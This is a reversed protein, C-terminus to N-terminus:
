VKIGDRRLDAMSAPGAVTGRPAKYWGPDKYSTLNNRVKFVNFMGGAGLYDHPGQAGVMPISNEPMTMHKAHEAMDGMGNAGMTMYGPVINNMKHDLKEHKIGIVNPIDHGMQNMTHHTMHCHMAWDGPNDAVFQVARTQGVAALVSTEPHRREKPIIGGDTEIVEFAHGHLHVPHHDMASLNGVRIRTLDGTKCVLPETGPFCNGNFTLTNYGSFVNPDPRYTGPKIDFENLMIVFDRDPRKEEEKRPHVIFMGTLGMGEQTMTDTHSHYMFTGHQNITWEYKFTEGPLLKRQNLGGVGDMGNPLLLGHWHISTKTNLKNTLYIRVKDGEVAEIVPGSIQGNYGWCIAKLGPAFEHVAEQAFMHFVKVGDVIKFPLTSGNPVVVPTYDKGPLGPEWNDWENVSRAYFDNGRPYSYVEDSYTMPKAKKMAGMNHGAHPDKKMKPKPMKAAPMAHGSHSGRMSDQANAKGGLVLGTLAAGSMMLADRRSMKLPTGKAKDSGKPISEKSVTEISSKKSKDLDNNNDKTM